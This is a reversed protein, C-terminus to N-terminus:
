VPAPSREETREEALGLNVPLSLPGYTIFSPSYPIRDADIALRLRPLRTFLASLAIRGELRALSAGICFHPGHGFSLHGKQERTIDFRDATEGYQDTDTGAGGYCSLLAEGAPVRVGALTVDTVTYRFPATIVSPHNRLTEEVVQPWLDGSVALARQEPHTCLSVIAHGLMRVTTEHGAMLILFLNTVLETSSLRDGEDHARVLGTTLDEGPDRRKREVLETLYGFMEGQAAQTQEGTSTPTILTNTWTRLPSREPEPIGYLECIVSMPLPETFASALDVGDGTAVVDDLLEATMEEIRPALAEVRAATFARGILSRLRRHDAGDLVQLHDGEILARLPWDPPITGDHLAVWHKPNMSVLENDHGLMEALAAYNTVAWVKVDGPFELPVVPGIERLRALTRPVPEGPVPFQSPSGLM